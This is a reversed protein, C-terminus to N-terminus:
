PLRVRSNFSTEGKEERETRWLGARLSSGWGLYRDVALAWLLPCADTGVRKDEIMGKQGEFEKEIERQNM